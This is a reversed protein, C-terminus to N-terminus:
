TTIAQLLRMFGVGMAVLSTIFASTRTSTVREHSTISNRLKKVTLVFLGTYLHTTHQITSAMESSLDKNVVNGKGTM